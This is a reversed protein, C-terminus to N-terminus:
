IKARYTQGFDLCHVPFNSHSVHARAYLVWVGLILSFDRNSNSERVGGASVGYGYGM